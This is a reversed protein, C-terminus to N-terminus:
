RPKFHPGNPFQEPTDTFFYFAAGHVSVSCVNQAFFFLNMKAIIPRLFVTFGGLIVSGFFGAILFNVFVDKILISCCALSLGSVGMIYVLWVIPQNQPLDLKEQSSLEESDPAPSHEAREGSLGATPPPPSSAHAAVHGTTSPPSAHAAVHGTTSAALPSAHAAVHRQEVEDWSAGDLLQPRHTTPRLQDAPPVVVGHEDVMEGGTGEEELRHYVKQNSRRKAGGAGVIRQEVSDSSIGSASSAASSGAGGLLGDTSAVSDPSSDPGGSSKSPTSTGVKRTEGDGGVAAGMSSSEAGVVSALEEPGSGGHKVHQDGGANLKKLRANQARAEDSEEFYDGLVPVLIVLSFPIALLFCFQPGRVEILWGVLAMSFLHWVSIGQPPSFFRHLSYGM